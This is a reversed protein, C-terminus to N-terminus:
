LAVSVFLEILLFVINCLYFSGTSLLILNSKLMDISDNLQTVIPQKQIVRFILYELEIDWFHQYALSNMNIRKYLNTILPVEKRVTKGWSHQSIIPYTFDIIFTARLSKASSDM